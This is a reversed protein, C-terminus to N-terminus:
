QSQSVFRFSVFGLVGHADVLITKDVERAGGPPSPTSLLGNQLSASYGDARVLAMYELPFVKDYSSVQAGGIFAIQISIFRPYWCPLM